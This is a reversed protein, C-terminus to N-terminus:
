RLIESEDKEASIKQNVVLRKSVKKISIDHLCVEFTM